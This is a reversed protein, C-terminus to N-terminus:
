VAHLGDSVIDSPSQPIRPSCQLKMGNLVFCLVERRVVGGSRHQDVCEEM